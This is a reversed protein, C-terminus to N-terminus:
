VEVRYVLNTRPATAATCGDFDYDIQPVFICFLSAINQLSKEREKPRIEFSKPEILSLTHFLFYETFETNFHMRQTMMNSHRQTNANNDISQLEMCHIAQGVDNSNTLASNRNIRNLKNIKPHFQLHGIGDPHHYDLAPTGSHPRSFLDRCFWEAEIWTSLVFRVCVVWHCNGHM